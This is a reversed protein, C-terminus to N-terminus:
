YLKRDLKGSLIRFLIRVIILVVGTVTGVPELGALVANRIALGSTEDSSELM